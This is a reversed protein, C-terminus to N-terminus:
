RVGLIEIMNGNSDKRFKQYEVELIFTYAAGSSPTSNSYQIYSKEWDVNTWSDFRATRPRWPIGSGETFTDILTGLPILQGKIWGQSYIVLSAKQIETLVANTFGQVPGNALVTNPIIRMAKIIIIQDTQNQLNQITPLQVQSVVQAPVPIEILQSPGRPEEQIVMINKQEM